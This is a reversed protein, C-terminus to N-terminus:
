LADECVCEISLAQSMRSKDRYVTIGKCGSEYARLFAREVDENTTDQPFNIAKSM